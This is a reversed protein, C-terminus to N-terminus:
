IPSSGCLKQEGRSSASPSAISLLRRLGLRSTGATRHRMLRPTNPPLRILRSEALGSAREAACLPSLESMACPGFLALIRCICRLLTCRVRHPRENSLAGRVSGYPRSERM